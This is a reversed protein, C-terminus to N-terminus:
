WLCHLAYVLFATVVHGTARVLDWYLIMQLPGTRLDRQGVTSQVSFQNNSKVPYCCYSRRYHDAHYNVNVSHQLSWQDPNCYLSLFINSPLNKQLSNWVAIISPLISVSLLKHMSSFYAFAINASTLGISKFLISASTSM